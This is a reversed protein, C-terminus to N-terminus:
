SMDNAQIEAANPVAIDEDQPYGRDNNNNLNKAIEGSVYKLITNTAQTLSPPNALKYKNNEDEYEKIQNQLNIMNDQITQLVKLQEEQLEKTAQNLQDKPMKEEEEVAPKEEEEVVPKEEEEVAPKEEEEVAPKEEEEVAPKEEKEVAPKEEEEVAPKEEEEVAPKEEEIASKNVATPSVSNISKLDDSLNEASVPNVLEPNNAIKQKQFLPSEEFNPVVRKVPENTEINENEDREAGESYGSFNNKLTTNALHPQKKNKKSQTGKKNKKAGGKKYKKKSQNKKNLIKSIKGKTLKM